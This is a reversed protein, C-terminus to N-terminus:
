LEQTSENVKTGKLIKYYAASIYDLDNIISGCVNYEVLHEMREVCKLNRKKIRYTNNLHYFHSEIYYDRVSKEVCFLRVKLQLLNLYLRFSHQKNKGYFIRRCLPSTGHLNLTNNIRSAKTALFCSLPQM